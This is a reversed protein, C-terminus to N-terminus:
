SLEVNEELINLRDLISLGAPNGWRILGNEDDRSIAAEDKKAMLRDACEAEITEKRMNDPIECIDYLISEAKLKEYRPPTTSLERRGIVASPAM